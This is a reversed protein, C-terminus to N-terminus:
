KFFKNIIEVIKSKYVVGKASKQNTFCLPPYVVCWWNNGSGSGLNIILADYYDAELTVGDYSRTPFFENNIEMSCGYSFGFELLVSTIFNEIESKCYTLRNVIEDKSKSECVLPTIFEVVKDKVLYKVGQDEESNSNARIHIRLYSKSTQGSCSVFFSICCLSFVLSSIYITLRKM